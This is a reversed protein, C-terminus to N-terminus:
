TGITITVDAGPAVTERMNPNQDIVQGKHQPDSQRKVKVKFGQEELTKTAENLDMGEVNPPFVGGPKPAPKPLSELEPAAPVDATVFDRLHAETYADLMSLLIAFGSWWFRSIARDRRDLYREYHEAASAADGSLAAAEQADLSRESRQWEVYGAAVLGTEAAFVVAAKIPQNNELQGWGPFALSRFMTAPPSSTSRGVVAPTGGLAPRGASEEAGATTALAIGLGSVLLGVWALHRRHSRPGVRLSQRSRTPISGVESTILARCSSKFDKFDM